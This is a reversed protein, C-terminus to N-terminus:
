KARMVLFLSSSPFLPHFYFSPFLPLAVESQTSVREAGALLRPERREEGNEREEVWAGDGRNEYACM